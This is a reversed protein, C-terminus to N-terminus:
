KVEKKTHFLMNMLLEELKSVRGKLFEVETSLEVLGKKYSEILLRKNKDSINIKTDEVDPLYKILKMLVKGLEYRIGHEELIAVFEALSVTMTEQEFSLFSLIEKVYDTLTGYKIYAIEYGTANAIKEINRDSPKHKGKEWDSITPIRLMGILQGFEKQNMGISERITKIRKGIKVANTELKTTNKIVMYRNM